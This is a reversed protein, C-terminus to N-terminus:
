LKSKNHKNYLSELLFRSQFKDSRILVADKDLRQLVACNLSGLDPTDLRKLALVVSLSYKM